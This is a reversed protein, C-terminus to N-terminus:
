FGPDFPEDKAEDLEEDDEVDVDLCGEDGSLPIAM